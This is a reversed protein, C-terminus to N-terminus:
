YGLRAGAERVRPASRVLPVGSPRNNFLILTILDCM